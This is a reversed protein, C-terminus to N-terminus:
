WGGRPTSYSVDKRCVRSDRWMLLLEAYTSLIAQMLSAVRSSRNSACPLSMIAVCNWTRSLHPVLKKQLSMWLRRSSHLTTTVRRTGHTVM